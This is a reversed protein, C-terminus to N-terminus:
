WGTAAAPAWLVNPGGGGGGGAGGMGGAMGLGMGTGGMGAMKGPTFDTSTSIVPMDPLSVKSLGTTTIRKAQAPASM